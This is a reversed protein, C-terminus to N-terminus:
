SAEGEPKHCLKGTASGAGSESECEIVNAGQEAGGGGALSEAAALLGSAFGHCFDAERQDQKATHEQSKRAWTNADEKWDAAGDRLIARLNTLELELLQNWQRAKEFDGSLGDRQASVTELSEMRTEAIKKWQDREHQIEVIRVQAEALQKEIPNM